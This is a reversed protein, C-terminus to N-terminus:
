NNHPIAYITNEKLLRLYELQIETIKKGIEDAKKVHEILENRTFEGASGLSISADPPMIQLRAVVLEQIQEETAKDSM